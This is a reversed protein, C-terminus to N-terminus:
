QWISAAVEEMTTGYYLYGYIAAAALVFRGYNRTEPIPIAELFLDLPLGGDPWERDADLWRRVRGQGGNYAQLALMISGEMQNSILHRMYFSGLHISVRPDTLILGGPSRLNPGGARIIRDAIYEGTRPMFQALGVAGAHSVAYHGFLSETRILGLMMEPRLNMEAAYREVLDLFPRPHSRYLDERSRVFYARHTYRFAVRISEMWDGAAGLADSVRRLQPISLKHELARIYPQAFSAAGHEFFGLLFELEGDENPPTTLRAGPNASEVPSFNEGLKLAAMTRYYVSANPQEFAVRFFSEASRDTTLFGEQVARGTIWAFQALSTGARTGGSTKSELANFVELMTDWQRENALHRSLRDFAGNFVSMDTLHPIASLFVPTANSPDNVVTNMLIYWHCADSQLTDPAFALARRFYESSAAFRGRAREIRGSHHLILYRRANIAEIDLARVFSLLEAYNESTGSGDMTFFSAPLNRTELLSGWANFRDLGEQRMAPTFQYARALDGILAPYQFFLLGGDQMAPSLNNLTIRHSVPFRRSFIIGREGPTLLGEIAIAETYAWRRLDGAPIDFLFAVIERRTTEDVPTVPANEGAARLRAFFALAKEWGDEPSPLLRAAEEYRELRYLAAAHLLIADARNRMNAASLFGIMDQVEHPEATELLLRLLRLTAERRAPPSPSELAASFLLMQLRRSEEESSELNAGALRGAYYAAAPHIQSLTRLESVAESFDAPLEAQVIFGMDGMRLMDAAEQRHLGLIQATGCSSFCLLFVFLFIATKTEQRYM